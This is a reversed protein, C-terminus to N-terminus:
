FGFTVTKPFCYSKFDQILFLLYFIKFSVRTLHSLTSYIRNILVNFRELEQLLVVTSPTINMEFAKRVKAVDYIPPLKRLIDCAVSNIVEERSVEGEVSGSVVM